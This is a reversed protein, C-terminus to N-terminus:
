MFRFSIFTYVTRVGGFTLYASFIRERDVNFRRAARYRQVVMEARSLNSM